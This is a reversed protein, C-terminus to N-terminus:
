ETFASVLEKRGADNGPFTYVFRVSGYPRQLVVCSKKVTFQAFTEAPVLLLPFRVDNANSWARLALTDSIPGSQDVLGVIRYADRASYYYQQMFQSYSLFDTFCAPCTFDSIRILVIHRNETGSRFYPNQSSLYTNITQLDLTDAPVDKNMIYAGATFQGFLIVITLAIVTRKKGIFYHTGTKMSLFYQVCLLDLIVFNLLFETSNSFSVPLVGFCNCVFTHQSIVARALVFLFTTTLLGLVITCSRIYKNLILGAGCVIETGILLFAILTSQPEAVQLLQKVTESFSQLIFLKSIGAVAFL